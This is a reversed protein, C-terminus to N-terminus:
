KADIDTLAIKMEATVITEAGVQISARVLTMQMIEELVEIKTSLKEGLIAPRLVTLNKISGIFGLKVSEQYIYQNIYGMRAACTQAINEVLACPNLIGNEMFLNDERVEFDTTTVVEDFHTLHDIMVFPPRQPLLTLIDIKQLETETMM